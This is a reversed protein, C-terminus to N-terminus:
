RAQMGAIQREKELSEAEKDLLAQLSLGCCACCTCSASAQEDMSGGVWFRVV